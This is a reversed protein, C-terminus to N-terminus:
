HGTSDETVNCRRLPRKDGVDNPLRIAQRQTLGQM